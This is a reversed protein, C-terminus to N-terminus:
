KEAVDYPNKDVEQKSSVLSYEIFFSFVIPFCMLPIYAIPLNREPSISMIIGLVPIIFWFLVVGLSAMHPSFKKRLIKRLIWSLAIFGIIFAMLGTVLSITSTLVELKILEYVDGFPTLGGIILYGTSNALTWFALWFLTLAIHWDSKKKLLLFTQVLFSMFLCVVIGGAYIWALQLHTVTNPLYWNIYSLEYPWLFSIYVNVIEGGFLLVFLGHGFIEHVIEAIIKMLFGAALFTLFFEKKDQSM